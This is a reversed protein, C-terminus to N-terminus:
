QNPERRRIVRAPIGVATVHDPLDRIVVSGAGVVAWAGISRDPIVRSGTGLLVGEGVTVRGAVNSGPAIHACRGIRCDHDVTAGTNIIAGDAVVSDVNIVAGPMVAVGDGLRARRSVAARPSIANVLAFGMAQIRLMAEARVRNSGIAVFARTVGSRLIEPLAEDGGVVRVGCLSQRDPERSTCGVPEFEGADELIDIIVKAHGGAGVIIV